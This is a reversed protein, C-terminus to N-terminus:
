NLDLFVSLVPSRSDTLFSFFLAVKKFFHRRRKLLRTTGQRAVLFSPARDLSFRKKEGELWGEVGFLEQLRVSGLFLIFLLVLGSCDLYLINPFLEM